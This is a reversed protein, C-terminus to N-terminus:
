PINGIRVAVAGHVALEAFEAFEREGGGRDDGAVDADATVASVPGLPLDNLADSSDAPSPGM